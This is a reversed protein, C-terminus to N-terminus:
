NALAYRVFTDELEAPDSSDVVGPISVKRFLSEVNSVRTVIKSLANIHTGYRKFYGKRDALQSETYEFVYTIPVKLEYNELPLNGKSKLWATVHYVSEMKLPSTDANVNLVGALRNKEYAILLKIEKQITLLREQDEIKKEAIVKVVSGLHEVWASAAHALSMAKYKYILNGGVEGSLLRAYNEDKRYHEVLEEESDWLEGATEAMFGNVINRVEEPAQDLSYYVDMVLDSPNVGLNQAFKFLSLYPRSNNIVEVVLSLGRLWLYDEFSMDKTTICTEEVDLVCMEDYEGFNLPVIRYKGKMGYEARYAPTKFPTGHLMMLSYITVSSVGANIVDKVGRVFTEKSEGPLGVILEGKTPRGVENLHQNVAMYDELKINERKINSLVQANMSQVSMNVSFINGMKKTIDIVREKNNKGTTAMIQRPWGFTQNAQYLAECIDRDRPYMGFNTDALHLNVIGLSSARPAIYNIEEIVREISFINIKNFYDNGTHCFSCEFPCGRNTEIFPTLTGDFFTDLLGNLYPSPIDDLRKLRNPLKGKVCVPADSFRTEPAIYVCGEISNEFTRSVESRNALIHAILKSFTIEAELEVFIDTNPRSLLFLKQLETEHPFNTGGQISIVQSNVRKAVGAVHESLNSNWSYNSLAIVDPPSSKIAEIVAQPYKYLSLEIDKGHCKKAYSGIFGINIPITDSVLVVTNHTVDCMFIKLPKINM